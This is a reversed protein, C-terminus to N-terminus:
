PQAIFLNKAATTMSGTEAIEIIYKLQNLTM